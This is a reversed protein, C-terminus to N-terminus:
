KKLNKIVIKRLLKKFKPTCRKKMQKCVKDIVLDVRQKKSLKSINLSNNKNNNKNKASNSTTKRKKSIRKTKKRMGGNQCSPPWKKFSPMGPAVTDSFDQIYGCSM